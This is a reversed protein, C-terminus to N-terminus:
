SGSSAASDPEEFPALLRGNAVFKEPGVSCRVGSGTIQMELIPLRIILRHCVASSVTLTEYSVQPLHHSTTRLRHMLM